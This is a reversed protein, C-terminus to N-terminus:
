SNLLSNGSPGPTLFRDPLAPILTRDQDPFQRMGSSDGLVHATVSLTARTSCLGCAATFVCSFLHISNNLM